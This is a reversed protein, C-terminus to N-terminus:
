AIIEDDPVVAKLQLQREIWATTVRDPYRDEAVCLPGKACASRDTIRRACRTPCGRFVFVYLTHGASRLNIPQVVRQSAGEDGTASTVLAAVGRVV